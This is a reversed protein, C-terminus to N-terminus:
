PTETERAVTARQQMDLKAFSEPQKKLQKFCSRRLIFRTLGIHLIIVCFAVFV